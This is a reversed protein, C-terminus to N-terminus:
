RRRNGSNENRTKIIALIFKRLYVKKKRGRERDSRMNLRYNRMIPFTLNTVRKIKNVVSACVKRGVYGVVVKITHHAGYRDVRCWIVIM